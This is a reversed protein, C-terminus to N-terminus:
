EALLCLCCHLRKLCGVHREVRLARAIDDLLLDCFCNEGDVAM